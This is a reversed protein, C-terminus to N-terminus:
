KKKGRLIIAICIAGTILVAGCCLFLKSEDGTKPSESPKPSHKPIVTIDYQMQGEEEDWMPISVLIPTIIDYQNQGTVHLLYVGTDLDKIVAMGSDDTYVKADAKASYSCLTKAAEELDKAYKLQNLDVNSEKFDDTLIYSGDVVEAVKVYSFEVDSKLTGVKGDELEITISGSEKQEVTTDAASVSLVSSFMMVLIVVLIIGRSKNKM